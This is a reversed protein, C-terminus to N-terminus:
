FDELYLSEFAYKKSNYWGARDRIDVLFEAYKLSAVVPDIVPVNLYDQLKEYFGYSMTCGLIIVEAGDVEVAEKAKEKMKEFTIKENEHLSDPTFGLIKFSALKDKFGYKIINEMMQPVWKQRGVLISFRHGLTAAIQVSSEAPATVVMRNLIEKAEYLGPDYFCGIIAADYGDKELSKLLDLLEPLIIAGYYRYELHKPGKKLCTFEIRTNERKVKELDKILEPCAGEPGVPDIYMIKNLKFM